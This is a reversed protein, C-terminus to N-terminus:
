QKTEVVAYRTIKWFKSPDTIALYEVISDNSVLEYSSAPHDSILKVKKANLPITNIEQINVENFNNDTIETVLVRNRGIGLFGGERAVVGKQELEEISGTAVYASNLEDDQAKMKETVALVTTNLDEVETNLKALMYEREVLQAKLDSISSDRQVITTELLGIKKELSAIRIGSNQLKRNLAALKKKNEKLLENLSELEEYIRDRLDTSLEGDTSSESLLSEKEQMAMLDGEINMLTYVWEDVLSDREEIESMLNINESELFGYEENHQRDLILYGAVGAWILIAITGLYFWQDRKNSQKRPSKVTNPSAPKEAENNKKNEM